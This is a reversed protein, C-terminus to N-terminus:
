TFEVLHRYSNIIRLISTSSNGKAAKSNPSTGRTAGRVIGEAQWEHVEWEM